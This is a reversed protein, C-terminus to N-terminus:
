KFGQKKDSQLLEQQRVSEKHIDNYLARIFDESLQQMRGRQVANQLVEEFRAPQVVNTHHVMKYAGIARAARMRKGLLDTLQQDLSDIQMRYYSISDKPMNQAYTKGAYFCFIM